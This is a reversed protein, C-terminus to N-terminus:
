EGLVGSVVVKLLYWTDRGADFTKLDATRLILLSGATALHRRVISFFLLVYM